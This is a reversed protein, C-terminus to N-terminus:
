GLPLFFVVLPFPHISFLRSGPHSHIKLIAMHKRIAEEYLPRGFEAPWSVRLPDREFCRDYPVPLLKHACLIQAGPEVHRGCLVLAVAEKQDGPFLHAYLREVQEGTFRLQFALM